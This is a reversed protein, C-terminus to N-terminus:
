MQVGFSRIFPPVMIYDKKWLDDRWGETLEYLVAIKSMKNFYTRGNLQLNKINGM